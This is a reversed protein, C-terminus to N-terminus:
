TYFPAFTAAAEAAAAMAGPPPRTCSMPDRPYQAGPYIRVCILAIDIYRASLSTSVVKIVNYICIYLHLMYGVHGM